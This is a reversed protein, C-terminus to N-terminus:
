RVYDVLNRVFREYPTGEPPCTRMYSFSNTIDREFDIGEAVVVVKGAGERSSYEVVAVMPPGAKAADSWVTALANGRSPKSKKWASTFVVQGRQYDALPIGDSNLGAFIAHKRAGPTPKVGVWLKPEPRDPRYMMGRYVEDPPTSELGLDCAYSAALGSLILGGGRQVFAKIAGIAKKSRFERPVRDIKLRDFPARGTGGAYHFWALDYDDASLQAPKGSADAFSGDPRVVLATVEACRLSLFDLMAADEANPKAVRPVAVRAPVRGKPRFALVNKALAAVKSRLASTRAEIRAADGGRWASDLRSFARSYQHIEEIYRALEPMEGRDAACLLNDRQQLYWSMRCFLPRMANLSDRVERFARSADAAAGIAQRAQGLKALAAAFDKAKARTDAQALLANASKTDIASCALLETDTTLIGRDAAFRHRLITSRAAAYDAETGALFIRGDGPELKVRLRTEKPGAPLAGPLDSPGTAEAVKYLDYAKGLRSPVIVTGERAEVPDNNHVILYHATGRRFVGVDIAPRRWHAKPRVPYPTWLEFDPTEVKIPFDGIYEAEVLLPGVSTLMKAIRGLERWKPSESLWPDGWFSCEKRYVHAVIPQNPRYLFIGKAGRALTHYITVRLEEITPAIRKGFAQVVPWQHSAPNPKRFEFMGIDGYGWPDRGWRNSYMTYCDTFIVQSMALSRWIAGPQEGKKPPTLPRSQHTFIIPHGPDMERIKEHMTMIPRYFRYAPEDFILYALLGPHDKFQDVIGRWSELVQPVKSMPDEKMGRHLGLSYYCVSRMGRKHAMDVFSENSARPAGQMNAAVVANLYHRQFDDLIKAGLEDHTEDLWKTLRPYMHPAYPFYVGFPFYDKLLPYAETPLASQGARVSSAALALALLTSIAAQRM